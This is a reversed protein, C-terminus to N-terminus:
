LGLIGIVWTVIGIAFMPITVSYVLLKDRLEQKRKQKWNKNM